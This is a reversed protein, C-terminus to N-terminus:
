LLFVSVEEHSLGDDEDGTGATANASGGGDEKGAFAPADGDGGARQGFACLKIVLQAQRVALQERAAQLGGSVRNFGSAALHERM